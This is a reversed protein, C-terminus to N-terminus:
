KVNPNKHNRKALKFAHSTRNKGLISVRILIESPNFPSPNALHRYFFPPKNEDKPIISVVMPM